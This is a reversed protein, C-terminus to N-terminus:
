TALRIRKMIGRKIGSEQLFSVDRPQLSVDSEARSDFNKFASILDSDRIFTRAPFKETDVVLLHIHHWFSRDNSDYHRYFIYRILFLMSSSWSVLNDSRDGKRWWLHDAILIATNTPTQTAFIDENSGHEGSIADRSSAQGEDTFGDSRTTYVRFLFRPIPKLELDSWHAHANPSFLLANDDLTTNRLTDTLEAPAM